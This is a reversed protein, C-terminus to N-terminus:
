MEPADKQTFITLARDLWQMATPVRRSNDNAKNISCTSWAEDTMDNCCYVPEDSAIPILAVGNDDLRRQRKM